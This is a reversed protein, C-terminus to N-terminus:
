LNIGLSEHVYRELGRTISEGRRDSIRTIIPIRNERRIATLEPECQDMLDGTMLLIGVEGAATIERIKDLAETRGSVVQGDMGALRMGLYADPKDSLVFFKM